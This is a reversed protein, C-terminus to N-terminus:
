IRKQFCTFYGNLHHKVSFINFKETEKKTYVESFRKLTLVEQTPTHRPIILNITNDKIQPYKQANLINAQAKVQTMIRFRLKISAKDVDRTKSFNEQQSFMDVIANKINNNIKLGKEKLREELVQKFSRSILTNLVVTEFFSGHVLVIKINNDKKGRILYFVERLPLLDIHNGAEEMQKKISSNATKIVKSIEKQGSPITSNFSPITYSKSDKLEILEGGTFIANDINIKIALDPFQGANKCSLMSNDFPFEELKEIRKFYQKNDILHKFFHYISYM